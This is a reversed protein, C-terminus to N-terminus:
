PLGCEREKSGRLAGEVDGRIKKAKRGREGYAVGGAMHKGEGWGKVGSEFRNESSTGRLRGLAGVRRAAAPPVRLVFDGHQRM